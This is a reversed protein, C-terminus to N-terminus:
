ARMMASLVMVEIISYLFAISVCAFLRRTSRLAIVGLVALDASTLLAALILENQAENLFPLRSARAIRVAPALGPAIMFIDFWARRCHDGCGNFFGLLCPVYVAASIVGLHGAFRGDPGNGARSKAMLVVAPIAWTARMPWRCSIAALFVLGALDAISLRLWRPRPNADSMVSM